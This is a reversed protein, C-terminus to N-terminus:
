GLAEALDGVLDDVDELGISLRLLNGPTTSEPGEAPKRHEILSEAGGLSTARTFVRVRGAVARADADGGKVQFSVMGGFHLMQRAAIEHGPHSRLGPYHTRDVRSHAALFEAIRTASECQQRFRCPLSALGRHVLWADFPSPVAGATTQILRVRGWYDDAQRTVLAGSLVDSHGGHYKTTSYMAIDAGLAFVRQGLPTGWTNDVVCTAKAKRSMEAIASIDSVALSPNSPTEIWVLRTNARLASKVQDLKTTDVITYSLGWREFLQALLKRTGYYVAEPCIVHDGPSLAHLIATTAASGSSFAAADAGGDLSALAAELATRNPTRERSYIHGHPLTGDEAREFTTSLVIPEALAGTTPDPRRGAHVAITSLRPTPLRPSSV